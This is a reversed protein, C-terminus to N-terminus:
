IVIVQYEIEIKTLIKSNIKNNNNYHNNKNNNNYHNNKNNNNNNNNYHNNKNIISPFKTIIQPLDIEVIPLIQVLIVFLSALKFQIKMKQM